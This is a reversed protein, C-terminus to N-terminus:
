DIGTPRYGNELFGLFKDLLEIRRWWLSWRDAANWAAGFSKYSLEAREILERACGYDGGLCKKYCQLPAGNPAGAGDRRPDTGRALAFSSALTADPILKKKGYQALADDSLMDRLDQSSLQEVIAPLLVIEGSSVRDRIERVESLTGELQSRAFRVTVYADVFDELTGGKGQTRARELARANGYMVLRYATNAIREGDANLTDINNLDFVNPRLLLAREAIRMEPRFSDLRNNRPNAEPRKLLSLPEPRQSMADSAGVVTRLPPMVGAANASSLVCALFASALTAHTQSTIRCRM